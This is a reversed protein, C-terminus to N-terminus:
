VDILPPLSPNISELRRYYRYLTVKRNDSRKAMKFILRSQHFLDFDTFEMFFKYAIQNYQKTRKKLSYEEMLKNQTEELVSCKNLVLDDYSLSNLKSLLKM